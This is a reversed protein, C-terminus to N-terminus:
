RTRKNLRGSQPISTNEGNNKIEYKAIRKKGKTYRELKGFSQSLNLFRWGRRHRRCIVTAVTRYYVSSNM